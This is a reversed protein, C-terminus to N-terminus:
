GDLQNIVNVLKAKYTPTADACLVVLMGNKLQARYETLNTYRNMWDQRALRQVAFLSKALQLSNLMGERDGRTLAQECVHQAVKLSRQYIGSESKHEFFGIREGVAFASRYLAENTQLLDVLKDALSQVFVIPDSVDIVHAIDAVKQMTENVLVQLMEPKKGILNKITPVTINARSALRTLTLNDIGSEDILHAASVLIVDRRIRSNELRKALGPAVNNQLRFIRGFNV